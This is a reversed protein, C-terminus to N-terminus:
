IRFFLHRVKEVLAQDGSTDGGPFRQFCTLVFDSCNKFHFIAQAEDLNEAPASNFAGDKLTVLWKGGWEGDVIIGFKGEVGKAAEQDVTAGLLIFMYPTLVGATGESLGAKKDGIGWKIDWTHVGYDMIQFGTYYLTPLPGMFGHTVMFGNWEEETLNQFIDLMKDSSAKFRALVEQRPYQRFSKAADNLEDAMVLLSHTDAPASQHAKEWRTLYDETVDILHGVVDRVEWETCCTQEEWNIPDEALRTFEAYDGRLVDLVVDKSSYLFPNVATTPSVTM